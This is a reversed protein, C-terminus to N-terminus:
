ESFCKQALVSYSLTKLAVNNEGFGTIGATLFHLLTEM